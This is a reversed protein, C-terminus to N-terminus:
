RTMSVARNRKTSVPRVGRRLNGGKGNVSGGKSGNEDSEGLAERNLSSHALENLSENAGKEEDLIQKLLDAAQPNGLLEAWEHLCGYSAIEYHEVKQAASVM